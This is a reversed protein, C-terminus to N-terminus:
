KRLGRIALRSFLVAGAIVFGAQIIPLGGYRLALMLGILAGITAPWAVLSARGTFVFLTCYLIISFTFVALMMDEADEEAVLRLLAQQV